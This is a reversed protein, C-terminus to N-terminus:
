SRIRVCVRSRHPQAVAATRNRHSQPPSVNELKLDRHAIDRAHLYELALLIQSALIQVSGTDFASPARGQFADFLDGGPCLETALILSGAAGASGLKAAIFPHCIGSLIASEQLAHRAQGTAALMGKRMIKIACEEGTSRNRGRLVEAVGGLGLRAEACEIDGLRLDGRGGGGM